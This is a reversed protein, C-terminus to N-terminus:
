FLPQARRSKTSFRILRYLQQVGVPDHGDGPTPMGGVDPGARYSTLGHTSDPCCAGGGIERWSGEGNDDGSRTPSM